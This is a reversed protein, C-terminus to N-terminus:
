TKTNVRRLLLLLFLLPSSPSERETHRHVASERRGEGRGEGTGDDDDGGANNHPIQSFATHRFEPLQEDLMGRSDTLEMIPVSHTSKTCKKGRGRRQQIKRRKKRKKTQLRRMILKTCHTSSVCWKKLTFLTNTGYQILKLLCWFFRCNKAVLNTNKRVDRSYHFVNRHREQM